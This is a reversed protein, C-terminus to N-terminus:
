KECIWQQEINCHEDNWEGTGTTRSWFEVCDQDVGNHSNPQGQAWYTTTGLPTGDVWKWKAEKGGDTLGIWPSGKSGVLGNLFVMEEPSDIVVLDAGKKECSERSLSWTKNTTSRFYCSFQFRTWGSPCKKAQMTANLKQMEKQMKDQEAALNSIRVKLLDREATANACRNELTDKEDVLAVYSAKLKDTAKVLINYSAQLVERDKSLNSHSSEVLDKASISANYSRQLNEVDKIMSNYGKQMEERIRTLNNVKNILNDREKTVSSSSAQLDNKQKVASDYGAQLLEKAKTLAANNTQLLDSSSKLQDKEKTLATNSTQLQSQKLQLDDKEKTLINNNTQIQDKTRSLANNQDQLRSQIVQLEKKEKQATKLNDELNEKEKTMAKYSNLHDKAVNRSHVSQGIVVALLLLCLLGSCITALKVPNGRLGSVSHQFKSKVDDSLLRKYRRPSEDVEM